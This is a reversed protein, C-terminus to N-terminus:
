DKQCARWQLFPMGSPSNGSTGTGDAKTSEAAQGNGGNAGAISKAPPQVSVLIGHTHGRDEKDALATGVTTGVSWDDAAGVILRGAVASAASWGSPCTNSTFFAVLGSPIPGPSDSTASAACAVRQVSPFASASADSAGNFGLTGASAFGGGCCGSALGVGHGPLPIDASVSHAHSSGWVGGFPAGTTGGVPTGVIFRHIADTISSWSAPCTAGDIFAILSAPASGFTIATTKKCARLQVYPIGSSAPLASGTVDWTGAASLGSNCCGVIGAFSVAGTTASGTIGHSHVRDEGPALPVGDTQGAGAPDSPVITRGIVTSEAAWGAPCNGTNFWALAGVPLADAASCTGVMCVQGSGCATGNPVAGFPCVGTAPECTGAEQCPDSPTCIAAAGPVCSGSLCQDNLTCGDGDECPGLVFAHICGVTPKCSDVTCGNGDDCNIAGGVCAGSQCSDQATCANADSCAQGDSAAAFGCTGDAHCVAVACASNAAPCGGPTCGGDPDAAADADSTTDGAAVPVDAVPVDPADDAPPADAATADTADHTDAEAAASKAVDSFAWASADEMAAVDADTAPASSCATALLAAAVGIGVVGRAKDLRRNVNAKGECAVRGARATPTLGAIATTM